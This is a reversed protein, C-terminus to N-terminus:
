EGGAAAQTRKGVTLEKLNPLIIGAIILTM